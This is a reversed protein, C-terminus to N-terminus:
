GVQAHIWAAIDSTVQEDVLDPTGYADMVDHISGHAAMFIHNLGPYCIFTARDGMASLGEQWLVFDVDASVQFDEEGQLVLLPLGNDIALAIPDIQMMHAIYPGGMGFASAQVLQEPTMGQLDELKEREADLQARAAEIQQEPAGELMALSQDYMLEWLQRPTGALIIGGAFGGGSKEMLYPTLLGGQSHGLLYAPGLAAQARAVKLAELVTVTYEDDITLEATALEPHAYHLKDCRISAIGDAALRYAIDRFPKNPGITEDLDSVGSGQAMVVLPTTEDFGAPLVLAGKLAMETGEHLTLPREEAGDPLALPLPQAVAQDAAQATLGLGAILGEPTFVCTMQARGAEHSAVLMARIGGGAEVVDVSEVALYAGLPEIESRYGAMLAESTLAAKMAEDFLQTVADFEGRVMHEYIRRASAEADFEAPVDGSLASAGGAGMLVMMFSLIVSMCKKM